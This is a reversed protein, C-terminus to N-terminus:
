VTVTKALNKPTDVSNGSKKGYLYTLLQIPYILLLNNIIQSNTDLEIIDCFLKPNYNKYTTILINNGDRSKIENMVSQSYKYDFENNIFHFIYCNKDVLALPGHKLNKASSSLSFTYCIERFKLNSELAIPNNNKNSSLFIINKKYIKDLINNLKLQLNSDNIMKNFNNSIEYICDLNVVYNSSLKLSLIFLMISSCVFTKTSAVSIEKSIKLYLNFDSNRPILSNYSNTISIFKYLNESFKKKKIKKIIDLLDKTEGSQSVVIFLTKTNPIDYDLFDSTNFSSVEYKTMKKLYIEGLLCAHYSTGSGLLIIKKYLFNHLNKQLELDIKPFIINNKNLTMSNKKFMNLIEKDQEKIEKELWFKYPYPTESLIEDQNIYTLKYDKTDEYNVNDNIPDYSLCLIDNNKLEFYKEVYESFTNYDSSVFFASKSFGIVLPIEKRTIYLNLPEDLKILLISWFGELQLFTLRLIQKFTKIDKYKEYNYEILNVIVESDTQSEFKKHLLLQKKLLESNSIIGNHVLAFKGNSSVFPHTNAISIKGNTAWRTHSIVSYSQFSKSQYLTDLNLDISKKTVIQNNYIFGIGASDYGRSRLIKLAKISKLIIEQKKGLYGFIGCM